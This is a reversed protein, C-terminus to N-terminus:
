ILEAERSADSRQVLQGEGVEAEREEGQGEGRPKNMDM